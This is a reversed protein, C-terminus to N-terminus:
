GSSGWVGFLGGGLGCKGQGDVLKQPTGFQDNHYWFYSGSVKFFLPNTSWTSNPKWGSAKIEVGSEDFEGVLGEDSYAFYTRVGGVEKWLRRGFPDYGYEAVGVVWVLRNDVDYVLDVVDGGVTKQVLNGNLDYEFSAEDNSLLANNGDLVANKNLRNGLLDYVFSEDELVPNTANILRYLEDYAYDYNGDDTSKKTINSSPSYEYGYNMLINQTADKVVKSKLRM